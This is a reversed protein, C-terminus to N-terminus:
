GGGKRGNDERKRSSGLQGIMWFMQEVPDLEGHLGGDDLVQVVVM